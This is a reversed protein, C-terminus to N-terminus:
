CLQKYQSIPSQHSNLAEDVISSYPKFNLQAIDDNLILLDDM